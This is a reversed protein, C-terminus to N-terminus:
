IAQIPANFRIGRQKREPSLLNLRQHSRRRHQKLTILTTPLFSFLGIFFVQPLLDRTFKNFGSPTVPGGKFILFLFLPFFASIFLCGILVDKRTKAM